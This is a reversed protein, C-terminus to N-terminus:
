YVTELYCKECYTIEPKDPSYTTKIEAGCKQCKREYLRHPNRSSLRNKHRCTPCKVPVPLDMKRYFGLEEKIVKYNKGCNQCALIEGAINEPTNKIDEPIQYTQKIYEKEDPDKWKYGKSLAQEKTLPFYEHSVTENYCFPSIKIPFFQGYNGM